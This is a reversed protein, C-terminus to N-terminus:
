QSMSDPSTWGSPDHGACRSARGLARGDHHDAEARAVVAPDGLVGQLGDGVCGHAEHAGSPVRRCVEDTVVRRAEVVDVVGGVGEGVHVGRDDVPQDGRGLLVPRHEVGHGARWEHELARHASQAVVGPDVAAIRGAIENRSRAYSRSPM